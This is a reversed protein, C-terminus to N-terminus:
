GQCRMERVVPGCAEWIGVGPLGGPCKGIFAGLTFEAADGLQEGTEMESRMPPGGDAWHGFGSAWADDM